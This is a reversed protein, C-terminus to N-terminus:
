KPLAKGGYKQREPLGKEKRYENEKKTAKVENKKIGSPDDVTPDRTGKDADCAHVLEHFLAATPDRNVDEDYKDTGDPEWKTTSDTGTGNGAKKFDGPTNSSGKPTKTEKITHTNNSGKLQDLVEKGAKTKGIDELAKEVQKKFEADGEVKIGAGAQVPYEVPPCPEPEAAAAVPLTQSASSGAAVVVAVGLALAWAVLGSIRAKM